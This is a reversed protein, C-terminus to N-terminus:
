EAMEALGAEIGDQRVQALREDREALEVLCAREDLLQGLSALREIMWPREREPAAAAREERGGGAVLGAGPERERLGQGGVTAHGARELPAPRQQREACELTAVTSPALRALREVLCDRDELAERCREPEALRLPFDRGEASPGGGACRECGGLLAHC